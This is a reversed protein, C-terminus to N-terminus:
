RPYPWSLCKVPRQGIQTCELRSQVRNHWINVLGTTLVTLVTHDALAPGSPTQLQFNPEFRDFVSLASSNRRKQMLVDIHLKYTLRDSLERLIPNLIDEAKFSNDRIVRGRILQIM